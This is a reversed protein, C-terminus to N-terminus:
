WNADRVARAPIAVLHRFALVGSGFAVSLGALVAALRGPSTVIIRLEQYWPQETLAAATSRFGLWFLRTGETLLQDGWGMLLDRNALSWLVSAMMAGGIVVTWSAATALSRRSALIRQPWTRIGYAPIVVRAMVRDVFGPSPDLHPLRKLAAVLDQDTRVMEFCAACDALHTRIDAPLATEHVADLEDASLHPRTTRM